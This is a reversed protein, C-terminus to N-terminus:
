REPEEEEDATLIEVIRAATAKLTMGKGFVDADGALWLSAEEVDKLTPRLAVIEVLKEDDLHGLIRKVDDPVAPTSRNSLDISQKGM